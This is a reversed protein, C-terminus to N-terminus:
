IDATAITDVSLLRFGTVKELRKHEEDFFTKRLVSKKAKKIAAAADGNALVNISDQIWATRDYSWKEEFEVKYIRKTKM